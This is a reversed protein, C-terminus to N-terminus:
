DDIAVVVTKSNSNVKRNAKLQFPNIQYEYNTRLNEFCEAEKIDIEEDNGVKNKISEIRTEFTKIKGMLMEATYQCSNNWNMRNLNNKIPQHLKFKKIRRKANEFRQNQILLQKAKVFNNVPEKGTSLKNLDKDLSNRISAIVRQKEKNKLVRAAPNIAEQVRKVDCMINDVFSVLHNLYESLENEANKLLEKDEIATSRQLNNTMTTFVERYKQNDSCIASLVSEFKHKDVIYPESPPNSTKEAIDWRNIDYYEKEYNDLIQTQAEESNSQTDMLDTPVIRKSRCSDIAELLKLNKVCIEGLASFSKTADEIPCRFFNKDGISTVFSEICNECYTHVCIKLFYPIRYDADFVYRCGKCEFVRHGNTIIELLYQNTPLDDPKTYIPSADSGCKYPCYFCNNKLRLDNLCSLCFSHGCTPLIKPRRESTNAFSEYCITCTIDM